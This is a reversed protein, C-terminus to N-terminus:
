LDIEGTWKWDKWNEVLKAEVPNLRIYKITEEFDQQNRIVHDYFQRQWMKGDYFKWFERTSLSKFDGCIRGLTMGSDGIGILGHFHDPMLCYSYLNFNYKERLNILIENTSTAIQKDDFFKRREHTVITVFHCRSAYDFNPLRLSNKRPKYEDNM